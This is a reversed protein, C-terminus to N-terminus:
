AVTLHDPEPLKVDDFAFNTTMLEDSVMSNYVFVGGAFSLGLVFSIGLKTWRDNVTDDLELNLLVLFSSVFVVIFTLITTYDIHFM